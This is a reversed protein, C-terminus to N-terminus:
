GKAAYALQLLKGAAVDIKAREDAYPLSQSFRSLSHCLGWASTPPAKATHEYEVAITYSAEIVQKSLGFTKNNFVNEVTEERNKGLMYSKAAAVMKTEETTNSDTLQRLQGSLQTAFNKFNQGKHILRLSQAHKSGWIIHNGCVSELYFCTVKFAKAGTESNELYFGRMLADGDLDIVRQPNVMFIFMDQGYGAESAYCGAPAILDGVKVSLGFADQGPVIDQLTAPRARPDNRVPRAPPVMWGNETAPTLSNIIDSNWLRSYHQTTISRLMLSHNSMRNILLSATEKGGNLQRIGHNICESALKPPLDRIYDAPAVVYRCLQGSSWHTLSVPVDNSGTICLDPSDCGEFQYPIARIAKTPANRERGGQKVIRMAEGMDALGWYREDNPRSSWQNHARMDNVKSM